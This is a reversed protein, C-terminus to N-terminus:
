QEPLFDKDKAEDYAKSTFEAKYHYGDQLPHNIFHESEKGNVYMKSKSQDMDRLPFDWMWLFHGIEFPYEEVWEAYITGDDTITYLTRKCDGEQIGINAPIEAKQGDVILELTAKVKYPTTRDNICVKLPNDANLTQQLLTSAAAVSIGIIATIILFKLTKKRKYPDGMGPWIM